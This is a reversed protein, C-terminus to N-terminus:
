DPAAPQPGGRPGVSGSDLPELSLLVRQFWPRYLEFNETHSDSLVLLTLGRSWELLAVTETTEGRRVIVRPISRDDVELVDSTVFEGSSLYAPGYQELLAQPTGRVAIVQVSADYDWSIGDVAIWGRPTRIVQWAKPFRVSLGFRPDEVPSGLVPPGRRAEVMPTAHAEGLRAYISGPPVRYLARFSNSDHESLEQARSDDAIRYMVDGRLPSHVGSAGLVHGIEHMAIRRVQGPTLLGISDVLSITVAEVGYRIAVRDDDSGPGLVECLDTGSGARGGFLGEPSEHLLAEFRVRVDAAAPDDVRQFRVPRGIEREWREFARHVAEVYDSPNRPRFEDQVDEPILPTEVSYRLPFADDRWRCLVLAEGGGPLRERHALWPLYNPEPLQGVRARFALYDHRSHRYPPPAPGACAAALAIGALLAALRM